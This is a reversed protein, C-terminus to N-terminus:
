SCMKSKKTIDNERNERKNYIYNYIYGIYGRRGDKKWSYDLRLEKTKRLAWKKSGYLIDVHILKM